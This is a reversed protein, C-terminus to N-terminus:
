LHISRPCTAVDLLIGGCAGRRNHCQQLYLRFSGSWLVDQPRLFSRSTEDVDHCKRSSSQDQSGRSKQRPSREGLAGIGIPTGLHHRSLGGLSLCHCRFQVLSFLGGPGRIDQIPHLYLSLLLSSKAVIARRRCRFWVGSCLRGRHPSSVMPYTRHLKRTLRVLGDVSGWLRPLWLHGVM